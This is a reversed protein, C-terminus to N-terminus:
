KLPSAPTPMMLKRHQSMIFPLLRQTIAQFEKDQMMAMNSKELIGMDEYAVLLTVENVDGYVTSWSGITKAGFKEAVRKLDNEIELYAARKGPKLIMNSVQYIV